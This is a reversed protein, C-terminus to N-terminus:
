KTLTIYVHPFASTRATCEGLAGDAQERERRVPTEGRKWAPRRMRSTRQWPGGLRARGPFDPLLPLIPREEMAAAPQM